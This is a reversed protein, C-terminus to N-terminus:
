FIERPAEEERSEQRLLIGSKEFAHWMSHRAEPNQKEIEAFLHAVYTRNSSTEYPCLKEQKEYQRLTAMRLIDAEAMLCLPRILTFPMKQMALKVPMTEYRGQFLQNLLATHIIDDQHHGLAIKNCGLSQAQQFITKRRYWSCLFCPVKRKDTSPDFDTEVIHLPVHLEQCFRELYDTSTRYDIHSMRVHIAEVSFKPKWIRMREALMETLFLSDKGGSLAVLVKDGDEIMGYDFIAKEFKAKLKKHLKREEATTEKGQMTM